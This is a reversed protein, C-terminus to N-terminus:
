PVGFLLYIARNGGAGYGAVLFLPGIFTDAGLFVSASGLTENPALGPIRHKIRGAELSVGAYVGTGLPSPLRFFQHQYTMRGFAFGEGLFQGIRYGSLAFPGGLAFTDFVPLETGLRSGGQLSLNWTHAGRSTAYDFRADVRRYAGDSVGGVRRGSFVNAVLAYGSRSFYARDLQDLFLRARVGKVSEDVDDFLSPGTVTASGVRRAVLGLRLEAVTGLVMGADIGARSDTGRLDAIRRGELYFGRLSEDFQLYPAVFFRGSPAIPQYLETLLTNRRGVQADVLWEAGFRNLWTHRYAARLNFSSEGRFDTAFALGLRLFRPGVEKEHVSFLLTRQGVENVIRYDVTEFDGRGYLRRLDRALEDESLAGGPQTRVLSDLVDANSRQLGEFRVAQVDGLGPTRRLQSQRTAAYTLEGVSYRRLSDANARAAEEGAHVAEPTREFSGATIDGLEPSILVDRETLSAMQRDVTSKGLFNILQGVVSVASTIESRKLLPTQINVAIVVDAACTARAVDIPLNNSVGGDVLLRGDVEIPSVAGPIAMSARMARSLNGADLLVADGTVIDTAVARFPIPLRSFDHVDSVTATLRRLFSEIAVGAVVGKPLRIGDRGVGFEGEAFGRYDDAKRRVSVEARPPTDEFVARWDTDRIVGELTAIPTGAAYAGGVIAGMSTGAICDVPVRLAELVKLVGIHAAGRAGGGSLALAIRPRGGSAPFVMPASTANTANTANTASTASTASAANTASPATTAKTPTIPTTAADASVTATAPTASQESHARAAGPDLLGTAVCLVSLLWVSPPCAKM